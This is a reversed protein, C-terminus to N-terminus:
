TEDKVVYFISYERGQDAFQVTGFEGLLALWEEHHLLCVHLTQNILAGCVDPETDIRFYIRSAAAFMNALVKRTDQPPIHEMVDTCFGHDARMPFPETLDVEFFPLFEAGPDRCNSAFDLLIPKLGAVHLHLSARGTGCGFDLVSAGAAPKAIQLFNPVEDEGPAIHRYDPLTWMREYKEKESLAEQPANWIDPLLGTGFIEVKCGDRELLRATFPLRMAQMRMTLSTRYEKDMFRVVCNPEGDNMPQRFAHSGEARHSSDYGFCKIHRFGLAFAVVLATTGVSSAAGILTFPEPYNPLLDDINSLQLHWLTANPARAFCDPHVQSAFLHERAPGVLNATEQQADLIIQYDPCLTEGALFKAAGNLAFLTAGGAVLSRVAGLDDKLSPGSGCIVAVGDHAPSAYFWKGARRSNIRVNEDIVEDPTNCVMQVPLYLPMSADPNQYRLQLNSFPLEM